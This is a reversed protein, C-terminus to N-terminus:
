DGGSMASMSTSTRASSILVFSFLIKEQTAAPSVM